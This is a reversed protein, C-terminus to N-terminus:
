KYVEWYLVLDHQVRHITAFSRQAHHTIQLLVCIFSYLALLLLHQLMYVSKGTSWCGHEQVRTAQQPQHCFFCLDCRRQWGPLRMIISLSQPNSHMICLQKSRESTVTIPVKEHM